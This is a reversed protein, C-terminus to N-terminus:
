SEDDEKAVARIREHLSRGCPTSQITKSCIRDQRTTKTAHRSPRGRCELRDAQCNSQWSHEKRQAQQARDANDADDAYQTLMSRSITHSSQWRPEGGSGRSESASEQAVQAHEVARKATTSASPRILFVAGPEKHSGAGVDRHGSQDLSGRLKPSIMLPKEACGIMGDILLSM